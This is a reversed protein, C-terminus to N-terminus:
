EGVKRKPSGYEAEYGNLVNCTNVAAHYDMLGEAMGKVNSVDVVPHLCKAPKVVTSRGACSPASLILCLAAAGIGVRNLRM